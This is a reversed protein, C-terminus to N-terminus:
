SVVHVSRRTYASVGEQHPLIATNSAGNAWVLLARGLHLNGARTAYRHFGTAVLDDGVDTQVGEAAEGVHDPESRRERISDRRSRRAKGEVVPALHHELRHQHEGPAALATGVDLVQAGLGREEVLDGGVRREIAGQGLVQAGLVEGRQLFRERGHAGVDPAPGLEGLPRAREREVDIGAEDLDMRLVLLTRAGVELPAEAEMRHAAEDVAGALRERHQQTRAIRPGVVGLVM